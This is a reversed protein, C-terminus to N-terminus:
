DPKETAGRPRGRVPAGALVDILLACLIATAAIIFLAAYSGRLVLLYSLGYAALAQLVAFSTTAISWASTREAISRHALMEHIRGLVLPVIGPTFAGMILTSLLLWAPSPDVAPIAVAVAQVGLGTRLTRQYGYRDAVSGALVPGAIAGIGFATWYHSATALGRGLGDAIFVVLFIMHPVLGAANLAYQTSLLHLQRPSHLAHSPPSELTAESAATPQPWGKWAIATLAMSIGALYLWTSTLGHRLFHPVLLGSAAIGVGVGMFIIGSALGRQKPDVCPLVTPAALVMLAGGTAGSVLRWSCYWLFDLPWACAVLSATTVIMLARLVARVPFWRALRAASLAGLVYGALNAASLYTAASASFWHNAIVAPLLPTYSFRALGVGVLTACFGAVVVFATRPRGSM